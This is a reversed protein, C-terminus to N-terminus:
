NFLNIIIGTALALMGLFWNVKTPFSHSIYVVGVITLLQSNTM